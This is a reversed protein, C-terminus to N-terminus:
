RSSGSSLRFSVILDHGRLRSVHQLLGNRNCRSDAFLKRPFGAKLWTETKCFITGGGGFGGLSDKVTQETPYVVKMSPLENAVWPIKYRSGPTGFDNGASFPDMGLCSRYFTRMWDTSYAGISSNQYEVELSAGTEPTALGLDQLARALGTHGNRSIDSPKRYSGPVSLVLRVDDSRSYDYRPLADAYWGSPTGLSAHTRLLTDLFPATRPSKGGGLASSSSHLPFDQVYVAQADRFPCEAVTDSVAARCRECERHYGLGLCARFPNSSGFAGTRETWNDGVHEELNATSM